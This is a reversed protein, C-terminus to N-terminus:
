QSMFYEHKPMTKKHGSHLLLFFLFMLSYKQDELWVNSYTLARDCTHHASEWEEVNKKRESLWKQIKKGWENIFSYEGVKKLASM